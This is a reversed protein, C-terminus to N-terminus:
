IYYIYKYIIFINIYVYIYFIYTLLNIKYSSLIIIKLNNIMKKIADLYSISDKVIFFLDERSRM